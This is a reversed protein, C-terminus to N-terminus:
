VRFGKEWAESEFVRFGLGKLPVTLVRYFGLGVKLCRGTYATAALPVALGAM